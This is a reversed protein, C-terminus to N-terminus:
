PFTGLVHVQEFKLYFNLIMNMLHLLLRVPITNILKVGGHLSVRWAAKLERRWYHHQTGELAIYLCYRQLGNPAYLSAFYAPLSLPISNIHM